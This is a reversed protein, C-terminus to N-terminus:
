DAMPNVSGSDSEMWSSGGNAETPTKQQDLLAKREVMLRELVGDEPDILQTIWAVIIAHRKQENIDDSFALAELHSLREAELLDV